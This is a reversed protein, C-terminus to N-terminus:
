IIRRNKLSLYSHPMHTLSSHANWLHLWHWLWGTQRIRPTKINTLDKRKQQRKLGLSQGEESIHQMRVQLQQQRHILTCMPSSAAICTVSGLIHTGRNTGEIHQYKVMKMSIRYKKGKLENLFRTRLVRNTSIKVIWKLVKQLSCRVIFSLIYNPFMWLYRM